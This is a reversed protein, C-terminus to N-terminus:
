SLIPLRCFFDGLRGAARFARSRLRFLEPVGTVPHRLTSGLIKITDFHGDPRLAANLDIAMTEEALDSVAKICYFPLGHAQARGAVAAAEMEVAVAGASRWFRKEEVTQVVHDVTHVVGRLHSAAAELPAAPYRVERGAVETAVVIGAPELEAVVAGCFGTSVLADARFAPLSADIAAAVHRAGAGNAVLLLDHKGLRASRAWGTGPLAAHRSMSARAVLGRFEMPEAAAILLKM